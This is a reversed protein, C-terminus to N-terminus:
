VIALTPCIPMQRHHAVGGSVGSPTEVVGFKGGLSQAASVGTFFAECPNLVSMCCIASDPKPFQREASAWQNQQCKFLVPYFRPM